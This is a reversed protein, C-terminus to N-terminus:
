IKPSSHSNVLALHQPCIQQRLTLLKGPAIQTSIGVNAELHAIAFTSTSTNSSQYQIVFADNQELAAGTTIIGGSAQLATELAAANAVPSQTYSLVNTTALLTTSGSLEQINITDGALIPNGGGSGTVFDLTAGNTVANNSELESLDFSGIDDGTYGSIEDISLGSTFIVTNAGNGIAITDAGLGGKFTDNGANGTLDDNGIGGYITDNSSGGIYTVKNTGANNGNLWVGFTSTSADVTRIGLDAVVIANPASSQLFVTDTGQNRIIVSTGSDHIIIDEGNGADQITSEELCLYTLM